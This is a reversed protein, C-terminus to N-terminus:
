SINDLTVPTGTCIIKIAGSSFASCITPATDNLVTMGVTNGQGNVWSPLAWAINDTPNPPIVLNGEGGWVQAHSWEFLGKTWLLSINSLPSNSNLNIVVNCGTPWSSPVSAIAICASSPNGSFKYKLTVPVYTNNQLIVNTPASLQCSGGSINFPKDTITYTGPTLKIGINTAIASTTYPVSAVVGSSNAFLLTDAGGLCAADGTATAAIGQTIPSSKPNALLRIPNIVDVGPRLTGASLTAIAPMALCSVNAGPILNVQTSIVGTPPTLQTEVPVDPKTLAITTSTGISVSVGKLPDLNQLCAADSQGDLMLYFSRSTGAGLAYNALPAGVATPISSNVPNYGTIQIPANYPSALAYNVPDVGVHTPLIVNFNAAPPNGSSTFSSQKNVTYYLTCITNNGVSALKKRSAAAVTNVYTNLFCGQTQSTINKLINKSTDPVFFAQLNANIPTLSTTTFQLPIKVRAAYLTSLNMDSSKLTYALTTSGSPFIINDSNILVDNVKRMTLDNSVEEIYHAFLHYTSTTPLKSYVCQNNTCQDPNWTYGDDSMIVPHLYNPQTSDLTVNGPLLNNFSLIIQGNGQPPSLLTMNQTGPKVNLGGQYFLYYGAVGVGPTGDDFLLHFQYITGHNAPYGLSDFMRIQYLPNTPPVNDTSSNVPEIQWLEGNNSGSAWTVNNDGALFHSNIWAPNNPDGVNYILNSVGNESNLTAIYSWYRSPSAFWAFWFDKFWSAAKSDTYYPNKTFKWQLYYNAPPNLANLNVDIHAADDRCWGNNDECSDHVYAFLKQGGYTLGSVSPCYKSIGDPTNRDSCIQKDFDAEVWRGCNLGNNYLGLYAPYLSPIIRHYQTNPYAVNTGTTGNLYGKQGVFPAKPDFGMIQSYVNLAIYNKSYDATGTNQYIYQILTSTIGCGGMGGDNSFTTNVVHGTNQEKAELNLNADNFFRNNPINKQAMSMINHLQFYGAAAYGVISFSLFSLGIVISIYRLKSIRKLCDM